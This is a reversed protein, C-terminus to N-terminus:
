ARSADLSCRLHNLCIRNHHVHVNVVTVKYAIKTHLRSNTACTNCTRVGDFLRSNNCDSAPGRESGLTCMCPVLIDHNTTGAWLRATITRSLLVPHCTNRRRMHTLRPIWHGMSRRRLFYWKEIFLLQCLVSGLVTSWSAILIVFYMHTQVCICASIQM